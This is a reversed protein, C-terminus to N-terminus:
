TPVREFTYAAVWPNTDWAFGRRANLGDWLAGFQDRRHVIRPLEEYGDGGDGLYPEGMGEAKADAETIAQLREVRVATVALAIRSAWRPMHIAPTWRAPYPHWDMADQPGSDDNKDARYKAYHRNGDQEGVGNLRPAFTERVWLRDGARIPLIGLLLSALTDAKVNHAEMAPTIFNWHHDSVPAPQPKIVRRTQTKRGALIARAMPGSFLIPKEVM